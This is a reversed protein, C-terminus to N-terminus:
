FEEIELFHFELDLLNAYDEGAEKMDEDGKEFYWNISLEINHDDMIRLRKFIDFLCKSSSTNFYEFYFNVTFSQTKKRVYRDLGDLIRQYFIFSNAPCSRGRIELIGQEPNFNVLPTVRTPEIFFNGM